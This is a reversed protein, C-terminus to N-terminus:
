SALIYGTVSNGQQLLTYAQVVTCAGAHLAHRLIYQILARCINIYHTSGQRCPRQMRTRNKSYVSLCVNYITHGANQISELRETLPQISVIGVHSCVIIATSRIGRERTVYSIFM